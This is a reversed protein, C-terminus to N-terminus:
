NKEKLAELPYSSTTLQIPNVSGFFETLRVQSIDRKYLDIRSNMTSLLFKHDYSQFLDQISKDSDYEIKEFYDLTHYTFRDIVTLGIEDDAHYSYSNEDKKSSAMAIINSSYIEEFLTGAQCTDVMFLIENYRNAINMQEFADALDDSTLEQTDQFKLFQDGGHGTLYFLINSGSDSMLKKSRPVYENHRGTLLRILNEITVDYGRYDVEINDGYINILRNPNNFVTGPYSNRPDCASDDGLM